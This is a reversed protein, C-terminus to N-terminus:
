NSASDQFIKKQIVWSGRSRTAEIKITGIKKTEHCPQTGFSCPTRNIKVNKIVIESDM